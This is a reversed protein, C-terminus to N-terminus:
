DNSDQVSCRGTVTQWRVQIPTLVVGHGSPSLAGVGRELVHWEAPHGADRMDASVPAGDHELERPEPCIDRQAVPM